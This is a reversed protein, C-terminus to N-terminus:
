APGPDGRDERARNGGTKGSARDGDHERAAVDIEGAEGGGEGSDPAEPDPDAGSTTRARPHAADYSARLREPDLHTYVQTTTAQAHGLLEQVQRLNAGRRLLHTAFSHRLTHPSPSAPLDAHALHAKLLRRVSRDTLRRLRLAGPRDNLFLAAERHAAQSLEAERAALYAVLAARAKSGLACLREKKRKGRVIVAGRELDLDRADMAVLEAVRCGTSYLTELLALDRRAAFSDGAVASLLREVQGETLLKPLPRDKKPGRLLVTPDKDIAGDRLAFRFYARLGALAKALTTKRRPASDEREKGDRFLIAYERLLLDDLRDLRRAGRSAAFELFRAVDQGYAAVTLPSVRRVKALHDLFRELMAFTESPRAKEDPEDIADM